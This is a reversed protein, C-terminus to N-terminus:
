NMRGPSVTSHERGKQFEDEVSGLDATNRHTPTNVHLVIVIMAQRAGGHFHKKKEHVHVHLTVKYMNVIFTGM